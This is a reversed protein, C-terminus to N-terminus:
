PAPHDEVYIQCNPLAMQLEAVGTKTAKTYYLYLYELQKMKALEKLGVDTIQTHELDLNTLQKMKALEKLGADTTQTNVLRLETLKELKAVKKIIATTANTPHPLFQAPQQFQVLAKEAAAM